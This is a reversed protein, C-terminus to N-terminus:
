ELQIEGQFDVKAGLTPLELTMVVPLTENGNLAQAALAEGILREIERQSSVGVLKLFKRISTNFTDDNVATRDLPATTESQARALPHAAVSQHIAYGPGDLPRAPM